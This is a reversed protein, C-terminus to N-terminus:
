NECLDGDKERDCSNCTEDGTGSVSGTYRSSENESVMMLEKLLEVREVGQLEMYYVAYSEELEFFGNVLHHLQVVGNSANEATEQARILVTELGASMLPKEVEGPVKVNEDLYAKLEARLEEADGGCGEFAEAFAPRESIMYLLLEPTVYEYRDRVAVDFTRNLVDSVEKTVKM